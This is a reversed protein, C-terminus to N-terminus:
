QSESFNNGMLELAEKIKRRAEESVEDFPARCRGPRFGLIEVATKVITNPNGYSFCNRFIRISDQLEKAKDWNRNQFNAYIGVMIEPFVNACGAIGGAGGAQLNWLILSDNGSLVTFNEIELYQLMQDFNGSSDKIGVINDKSALKKVTNPLLNVGTRAPINYLIIPLDVERSLSEYHQCLGSQTVSAFYPTIVSLIDAGLEQARQSLKITERTSICGTGAYVPIKGETEEVVAALIREKELFSLIYGEGNTGFCFIGNVGADMQRRVMKKLEKYNVSEDAYMPTIVPTIIGRIREDM